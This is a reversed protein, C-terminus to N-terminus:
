GERPVPPPLTLRQGPFLLDPQDPVALRSRNAAILQEWYAHTRPGVGVVDEAISWFSDGTRVVWVENDDVVIAAPEGGSPPTTGAPPGVDTAATPDPVSVVVSGPPVTTTPVEGAHGEADGNGNRDGDAAGDADAAAVPVPPPDLAVAPGASRDSGAAKGAASPPLLVMTATPARSSTTPPTAVPPTPTLLTMTATPTDPAAEDATAVVERGGGPSAWAVGGSMGLVSGAALSVGAGGGLAHRLVLPVARRALLTLWPYGLADALVQLITALLLYGCLMRAALRVLSMALPVPRTADVWAVLADATEFPVRLEDGGVQGLALFGAALLAILLLRTSRM